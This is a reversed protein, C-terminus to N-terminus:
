QVTDGISIKHGAAFASASMRKKGEPQLELIEVSKEGCGIVLPKVSLVTGIAGSLESLKSSFIKVNKGCLKATAIPWPNLGRIKNHVEFSPKSFDIPCLSKDIKSTHTAFSDDQKKPEATGNEVVDLTKLILEGGLQALRDFLEGSTENEGIETKVSLLIDGTDLGANMLMTTVGTIKDGNLVAEQIPSAGRYKPLLSGHINICGFRPVDLVAQPLIQGYAAVVVVDPKLDTLIQLAEQSKMSKPQFVPINFEEACVKVDPPTMIMKRGRPKDPQTFVGSVTHNSNAIAKLAPVAFDPTGMFVINM